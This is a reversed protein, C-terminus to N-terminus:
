YFPSELGFGLGPQALALVVAGTSADGFSEDGPGGRKELAGGLVLFFLIGGSRQAVESLNSREEVM